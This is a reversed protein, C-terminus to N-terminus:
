DAASFDKIIRVFRYLTSITRASLSIWNPNNVAEGMFSTKRIRDALDMIAEIQRINLTLALSQRGQERNVNGGYIEVLDVMQQTIPLTGTLEITFTNKRGVICFVTCFENLKDNDDQDDIQIPFNPDVKRAHHTPRRSEYADILYRRLRSSMVM